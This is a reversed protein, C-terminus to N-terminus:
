PFVSRLDLSWLICICPAGTVFWHTIAVCRVRAACHSIPLDGGAHGTNCKRVTIQDLTM